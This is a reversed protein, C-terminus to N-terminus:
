DECQEMGGCEYDGCSGQNCDPVTYDENNPCVWEPCCFPRAPDACDADSECPERCYEIEDCPDVFPADGGSGADADSSGGDYYYYPEAGPLSCCVDYFWAYGAALCDAKGSSPLPVSQETVDTDTETVEEATTEGVDADTQTLVEASTEVIDSDAAQSTDSAEGSSDQCATLVLTLAACLVCFRFM